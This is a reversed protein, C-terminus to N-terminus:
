RAEVPRWLFSAQVRHVTAGTLLGRFPSSYRGFYYGTTFATTSSLRRTLGAQLLSSQYATGSGDAVVFGYDSKSHSGSGFFIWPMRPTTWEWNLGTSLTSSSSLGLSDGVQRKAFGDFSHGGYRYQLAGGAVWTPRSQLADPRLTALFGNDSDFNVYGAGGELEATWFRGLKKRVFGTSSHAQSRGFSSDNMSANYRFGTTVDRSFRYASEVFAFQRQINNVSLRDSADGVFNRFSSDYRSAGVGMTFHLRASHAYTATSTANLSTVRTLELERGGPDIIVPAGTILSAFEDDTFEGAEVRQLLEELSAPPNEVRTTIPRRFWFQELGTNSGSANLALGWRRGLQRDFEIGLVHDTTNWDSYRSRQNRSPTYTLGFSSTRFRKRFALTAQAGFDTDSGLGSERGYISRAGPLGNSSYGASLSVNELRLGPVVSIAEAARDLGAGLSGGAVGGAFRAAGSGATRFPTTENLSSAAAAAMRHMATRRRTTQQGGSGSLAQARAARAAEIEKRTAAVPGAPRPSPATSRLVAGSSGARSSPQDAADRATRSTAAGVASLQPAAASRSLLASTSSRSEAGAAGAIM